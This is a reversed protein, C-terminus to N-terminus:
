ITISYMKIRGHIFNYKNEVEPPPLPRSEPVMRSFVGRAPELNPRDAFFGVLFYM